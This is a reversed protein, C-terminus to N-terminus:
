FSMHGWQNSLDFYEQGEGRQTWGLLKFELLVSDPISGRLAVTLPQKRRVWQSPMLFGATPVFSKADLVPHIIRLLKFGSLFLFFFFSFM